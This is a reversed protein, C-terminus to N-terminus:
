WTSLVKPQTPICIIRHLDHRCYILVCVCVCVCHWMKMDHRISYNNKDSLCHDIMGDGTICTACMVFGAM